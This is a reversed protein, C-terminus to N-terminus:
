LGLDCELTSLQERVEAGFPEEPGEYVTWGVQYLTDSHLVVFILQWCGRDVDSAETPRREM